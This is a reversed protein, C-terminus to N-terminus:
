DQMTAIRCSMKLACSFLGLFDVSLCREGREEFSLCEWAVYLNFFILPFSLFAVIFLYEQMANIDRVNVCVIVDNM